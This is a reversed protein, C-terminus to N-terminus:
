NSVVTFAERWQNSTATKQVIKFENQASILNNILLFLGCVFTFSQEFSPRPILCYHRLRKRGFWLPIRKKKTFLSFVVLSKHEVLEVDEFRIWGRMKRKWIWNLVHKQM